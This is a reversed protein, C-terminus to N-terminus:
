SPTATRPNKWTPSLEAHTARAAEAFTPIAQSRRREALPDGGRFAVRKNELAAERAESLTVTPFGGLGIERRKGRVM